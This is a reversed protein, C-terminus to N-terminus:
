ATTNKRRRESGINHSQLQWRMWFVPGVVRLSFLPYFTAALILACVRFGRTWCRLWVLTINDWQCSGQDYSGWNFRWTEWSESNTLLREESLVSLNVWNQNLLYRKHISDCMCVLATNIWWESMQVRVEYFEIVSNAMDHLNSNSFTNRVHSGLCLWCKAKAGM